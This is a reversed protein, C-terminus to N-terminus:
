REKRRLDAYKKMWDQVKLLNQRLIQKIQERSKLTADIAEVTSSGLLYSLLKPPFVWLTGWLAYAPHITYKPNTENLALEM